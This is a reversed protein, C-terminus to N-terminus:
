SVVIFITAFLLILGLIKLILGRNGSISDFYRLLQGHAAGVNTEVEAINEDIRQVMEGQESVMTALQQFVGGLEVIISEINQVADARTQHYNDQRLVLQQQQASQLTTSSSPPMELVVEGNGKRQTLSSTGPADLAGFHKKRDEAARINSSRTQLVEKFSKTADMLKGKLNDVISGTHAETQANGRASKGHTRLEQLSELKANLNQIDQKVVFTLENIEAAPDDFLSKKSVLKTLKQLKASTQSINKGIEAALAAFQSKATGDLSGPQKASIPAHLNVAVIGERRFTEIISFFESTRDM